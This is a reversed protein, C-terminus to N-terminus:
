LKKFLSVQGTESVKVIVSEGDKAASIFYATEDGTEFKHAESVTYANYKKAFVRKANTPLSELTIATSTGILEGEFTYYAATRKGAFDFTVQHYNKTSTWAVNEAEKFYSKFNNLTNIDVSNTSPAAFGTAFSIVLAIALLVKKM